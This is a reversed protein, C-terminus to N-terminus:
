LVLSISTLVLGSFRSQLNVAKAYVDPFSSAHVEMTQPELVGNSDSFCIVFTKM